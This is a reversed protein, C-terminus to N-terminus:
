SVIAMVWSLNYNCNASAIYQCTVIQGARVPLDIRCFKNLPIGFQSIDTSTRTIGFVGALLNGSKALVEQGGVMSGIGINVTFSEQSPAANFIGHMAAQIDIYAAIGNVPIRADLYGTIAGFGGAANGITVYKKM